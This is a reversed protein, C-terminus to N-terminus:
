ILTKIKERREFAKELKYTIGYGEIDIKVIPIHV